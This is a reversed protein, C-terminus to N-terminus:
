SLPQDREEEESQARDCACSKMWGQLEKIVGDNVSVATNYNTGADILLGVLYRKGHDLVWVPSGSQGKEADATLDLLATRRAWDEAGQRKLNADLTPTGASVTGKFCWMQRNKSGPYGATGIEGGLLAKALSDPLHGLVTGDGCAPSGWYCKDTVPKELTLLAYDYRDIANDPDWEPHIQLDQSPNGSHSRRKTEGQHSPSTSHRTTNRSERKM